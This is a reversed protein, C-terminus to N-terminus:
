PVLVTKGITARTELATHAAAAEALPFRQTLPVLRGSGFEELAKTELERQREWAQRQGLAWSVTLSQKMLDSTSIQTPEGASWGFLVLRGGRGLLSMAERGLSGGVGDLVVTPEREGLSERVRDTWGPQLYDVALDAGLGRVRETKAEGGAVGVVAARAARAAQVFLSGLGGAAATVVVVDDPGLAAVELIAVATRGTGIAAVAAEAALDGPIEHLADVSAVAREAYGGSAPGLHAVVRRGTWGGDVAAGVSDVTGAVERGPVMPLDPVPYGWSEGSRIATDILHVGAADVAIRVQREAPVPDPVEEYILREPPGFEHQRIAHM